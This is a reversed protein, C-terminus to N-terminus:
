TASATAPRAPTRRPGTGALALGLLAGRDEDARLEARDLPRVEDRGRALGAVGAEVDQDGAREVVLRVRALEALEAADRHELRAHVGVQVHGVVQLGGALAVEEDDEALGVDLQEVRLSPCAAPSAHFADVHEVRRRALHAAVAGVADGAPEDVRVVVFLAEEDAVRVEEAGSSGYPASLVVSLASISASAHAVSCLSTERGNSMGFVPRM